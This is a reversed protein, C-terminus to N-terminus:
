SQKKRRGGWKGVGMQVGEEKGVKCGRLADYLACTEQTVMQCGALGDEVVDERCDIPPTKGSPFNVADWPLSYSLPPPSLPNNAGPQLLYRRRKLAM